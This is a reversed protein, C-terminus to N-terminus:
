RSNVTSFKEVRVTGSHHARALLADRIRDVVEWM